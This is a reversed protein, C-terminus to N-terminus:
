AAPLYGFFTGAFVAPRPRRHMQGFILTNPIHKVTQFQIDDVGIRGFRTEAKINVISRAFNVRGVGLRDLRPTCRIDPFERIGNAALGQGTKHQYRTM